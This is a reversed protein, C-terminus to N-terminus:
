SFTGQIDISYGSAHESISIDYCRFTYEAQHKIQYLVPASRDSLDALVFSEDKYDSLIKRCSHCFRFRNMPKSDHPIRLEITQFDTDRIGTAGVCSVYSWTGGPQEDAIQGVKTPHPKYISLEGVEGTSLNILCPAHCSLGTCLSCTEPAWCFYITLVALFFFLIIGKKFFHQQM